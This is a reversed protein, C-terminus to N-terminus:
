FLLESLLVLSVVIGLDPIARRSIFGGGDFDVDAIRSRSLMVVRDFQERGLANPIARLQGDMLRALINIPDFVPKCGLKADLGTLDPHDAAIDAAGEAGLATEGLPRRNDRDCSASQAPRHFKHGGAFLTKRNRCEAGLRPLTDLKRGRLVSFKLREIM